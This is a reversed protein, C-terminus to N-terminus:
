GLLHTYKLGSGTNLLVVRDKASIWGRAALARLAPLMAAGEPCVFLGEEAALERMAAVISDDSVAVATGHTAQIARLCLEHAFPLPVRLGAAITNPQEARRAASRGEVYADVIPRCGQAQVAVLRPLREGIWGLAQLERMSKLLAILGVGGGTPYMVVEPPDWDFAEAIELGMTKKGEVRYPERMTALNFWGERECQRSVLRAAASIDGEVEHVDAGFRFCEHKIAAPTDVPMAVHLRLGAAACYASWAGGANGATPIALEEIGLERARAVGVAAGRAKFTGTPNVGEDKLWLERVALGRGVRHLRVLPTDGAGLSPVQAMDAVPLLERFRELGAPRSALREPTLASRVEALDYDVFLTHGCSTCVTQPLNPRHRRGCSTCSLGSVYGYTQGHYPM